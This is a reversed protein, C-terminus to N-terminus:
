ERGIGHKDLKEYLTARGIGLLKAAETRNGDAAELAEVLVGREYAALRQSLGARAKGPASGAAPLLDLDLAGPPSLAVLSEIENRLERVNGPWPHAELRARMADSVHFPGAGFREAFADLFHRALVDVDAPRERLPPVHLNVVKLRYYLDDRFAGAAVQAALDRHTAALIRVDVSIPHDEGVPRVEGEQLVRLLKAQTRADLEGVEDLFLTGGDAERFLGTRSRVAGTFAGKAHGFLEAEALEATIAACNFRVFPRDARTSARVIAEALREKGTGSEGTILVTVEKPAVRQVLLALRRMPESAFVMSRSLNLEAELRENDAGLRVTEVAREVVALLEDPEFPKRFYDHAGRKMADVATRESGHATILVVRLAKQSSVIRDLLGLGDLRPMRLDTLVLHFPEGDLKAWADEGDVAEEVEMGADELVGRLTYRVGEDDDVVLIRPTM